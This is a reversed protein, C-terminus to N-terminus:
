TDLQYSKRNKINELIWYYYKTFIVIYKANTLSGISILSNYLSPVYFVNDLKIGNSGISIIAKLRILNGEM